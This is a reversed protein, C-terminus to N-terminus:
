RGRGTLNMLWELGPIQPTQRNPGFFVDNIDDAPRNYPAMEEPTMDPMDRVRPSSGELQGLLARLTAVQERSMRDGGEMSPRRSPMAGRQRPSPIDGGYGSDSMGGRKMMKDPM